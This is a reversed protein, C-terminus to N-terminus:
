NSCIMAKRRCRHRPIYIAMSSPESEVLEIETRCHKGWTDCHGGDRSVRQRFALTQMQRHERLSSYCYLAFFRNASSDRTATGRNVDSTWKHNLQKGYSRFFWQGLVYHKLTRHDKKTTYYFYKILNTEDM